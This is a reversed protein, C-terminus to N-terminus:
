ADAIVISGDTVKADFTHLRLAPLGLVSGTTVDYRWDCGRCAVIRGRLCGEALSTGCRMCWAETAYIVNDVKFLAVADNGILVTAGHEPAIRELHGAVIFAPM